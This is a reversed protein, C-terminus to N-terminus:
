QLSSEFFARAEDLTERLEGGLYNQHGPWEPDYRGLWDDIFQLEEPELSREGATKRLWILLADELAYRRDYEALGVMDSFELLESQDRMRNLIEPEYVGGQFLMWDLESFVEHQNRRYMYERELSFKVGDIIFLPTSDASRTNRAHIANRRLVDSLDQRNMCSSTQSRDFGVSQAFDFIVASNIESPLLDPVFDKFVRVYGDVGSKEAACRALLSGIEALGPHGTPFERIIIRAHGRDSYQTRFTDLYGRYFGRCHWCAPSAYLVIEIAANENGISIDDEFIHDAPYSGQAEVPLHSATLISSILSCVISAFIRNVLHM